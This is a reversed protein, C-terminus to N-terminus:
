QMRRGNTRMKATNEVDSVVRKGDGTNYTHYYKQITDVVGDVIRVALVNDLKV